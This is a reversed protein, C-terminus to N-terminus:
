SDQLFERWMMVLVAMGAPGVFLGLLGFSEVGGFIGILVWIFPLRIANGILAPRVFHDAVGVVSLGIAIVAIAGAMTGQALLLCAAIAFILAAGFPIVAAVMTIVGFLLAHPVGLLMYAPIMVAGEGIAVFVLGDITGRVSRITQLGIREGAPGFLREGARRVQSLLVDRDRLLFFLTLLTFGFIVARHLLAAGLLRSHTFWASNRLAAIQGAAREPTALHDQWWLTLENSGFPLRGVWDPVPVGSAQAASLWDVLDRADHAAENLALALPVLILLAAILTIFLPLLLRDHSPFRNRLRMYLPDVAIALVAAWALAPLFGSVIWLGLLALGIVFASLALSRRETMGPLRTMFSRM